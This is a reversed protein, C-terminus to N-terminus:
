HTVTYRTKVPVTMLFYNGERVSEFSSEVEVRFYNLGLSFLSTKDAYILENAIKAHDRKANLKNTKNNTYGIIVHFMINYDQTNGGVQLLEMPEDPVEVSFTRDGFESEKISEESDHITWRSGNIAFPNISLVEKQLFKKTENLATSLETM